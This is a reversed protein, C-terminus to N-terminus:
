RVRRWGNETSVLHKEGSPSICVAKEDYISVYRRHHNTRCSIARASKMESLTIFLNNM